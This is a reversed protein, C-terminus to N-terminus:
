IWAYNFNNKFKITSALEDKKQKLFYFLDSNPDTKAAHHCLRWAILPLYSNDNFNLAKNVLRTIHILKNQWSLPIIFELNRKLDVLFTLQNHTLKKKM